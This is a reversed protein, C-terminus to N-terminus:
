FLSAEYEASTSIALRKMGPYITVRATYVLGTHVFTKTLRIREENAVEGVELDFGKNLFSDKLAVAQGRFSFRQYCRKRAYSEQFEPDRERRLRLKRSILRKLNKIAKHLDKRKTRLYFM